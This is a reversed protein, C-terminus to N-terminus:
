AKLYADLAPLATSGDREFDLGALGSLDLPAQTQLRLWQEELAATTNQLANQVHRVVNANGPSPLKFVRRAVKAMMAYRLDSSLHQNRSDDIVMSMMFVIFEKYLDRPLNLQLAVRLLMWVPSRRWPSRADRWLVEERTNKSITNVQAPHGAASLFGMFFESIMGPHTTDRDEDMSTGAKRAQPQMGPAAQHSM